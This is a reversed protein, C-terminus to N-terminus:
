NSSAYNLEKRLSEDHKQKPKDFLKEAGFVIVQGAMGAALDHFSFGGTKKWRFGDRIEWGISAGTVILFRDRPNEIGVKKLAWFGAANAVLHDLKDFYFLGPEHSNWRDHWYFKFDQARAVSFLLALAIITKKM